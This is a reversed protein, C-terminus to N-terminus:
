SFSFTFVFGRSAYLQFVIAGLLAAYKFFVFIFDKKKRADFAGPLFVLYFPTFFLSMRFLAPSYSALFQFSCGILLCSFEFKGTNSSKFYDHLFLISCALLLLYLYLTSKTYSTNLVLYDEFHDNGLFNVLYGLVTLRGITVIGVAIIVILPFVTKDKFYYLIFTILMVMAIPHCLYAVIILFLSRLYKKDVYDLFSHLVIGMALIQKLGALSFLFLGSVIFLIISYLRDKSFKNILRVISSVYAFEVFGFWVWLPAKFISFVKSLFYFGWYGEFREAIEPFSMTAVVHYDDIYSMTDAGVGSGRFAAIFIILSYIINCYVGEATQRSHNDEPYLSIVTRFIVALLVLTLLM